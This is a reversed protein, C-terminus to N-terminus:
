RHIRRSAFIIIRTRSVTGRLGVRFLTGILNFRGDNLALRM